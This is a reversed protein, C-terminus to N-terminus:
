SRYIEESNPRVAAFYIATATTQWGDQEHWTVTLHTAPARGARSGSRHAARNSGSRELRRWDAEADLLRWYTVLHQEDYTTLVPDNPAVDAVDPDLPPKQMRVRMMLVGVFAVGPNPRLGSPETRPQM